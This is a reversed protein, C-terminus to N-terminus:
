ADHISRGFAYAIGGLLMGSLLNIHWPTNLTEGYWSFVVLGVVFILIFSLWDVNSM